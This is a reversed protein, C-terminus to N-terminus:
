KAPKDVKAIESFTFSGWFAVTIFGIVAWWSDESELNAGLLICTGAFVAVHAALPRNKRLVIYAGVAVLFLLSAAM